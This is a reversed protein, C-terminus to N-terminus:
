ASSAPASAAPAAAPASAAAPAEAGAPAQGSLVPTTKPAAKYVKLYYWGGGGILLLGVIIPVVIAAVNPAASAPPSPCTGTVVMGSVVDCPKTKVDNAPTGACGTGAYTKLSIGASDCSYSISAVGAVNHCGTPYSAVMFPGSLTETCAKANTYTSVVAHGAPPVYASTSPVCKASKFMGLGANPAFKSDVKLGTSGGVPNIPNLGNLAASGQADHFYAYSLGLMGYPRFQANPEGLRYQGFVSIPLATVTGIQGTGAIAGTGFLKHKFGLGLPVAVSWHDNYIYSLQATAQTDSGVGVTTGSPSPASLTGSTVSPSIQTLGGQILWSGAKQAVACSVCGMLGLALLHKKL